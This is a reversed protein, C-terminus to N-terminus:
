QLQVKLYVGSRALPHLPLRRSRTPGLHDMPATKSKAIPRLRPPPLHPHRLIDRGTQQDTPALANTSSQCVVALNFSLKSPSSCGSNSFTTHTAATLGLVIISFVIAPLRLFWLWSFSRPSTKDTTYVQFKPLAMSITLSLSFQSLERQQHLRLLCSVVPTM